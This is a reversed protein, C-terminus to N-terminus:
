TAMFNKLEISNPSAIFNQIKPLRDQLKIVLNKASLIQPATRPANTQPDLFEIGDKTYTVINHKPNSFRYPENPVQTVYLNERLIYEASYNLAANNYFLNARM